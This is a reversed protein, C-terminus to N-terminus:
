FPFVAGDADHALHGRYFIEGDCLFPRAFLMDVIINRQSADDVIISHAPDKTSSDDYRTQVPQANGAVIVLRALVILRHEDNLLHHIVDASTHREMQVVLQLNHRFLHALFL